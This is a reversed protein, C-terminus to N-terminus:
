HLTFFSLFTNLSANLNWAKGLSVCMFFEIKLVKAFKFHRFNYYKPWVVYNFHPSICYKPQFTFNLHRLILFNNFFFSCFILAVFIERRLNCSLQGGFLCALNVTMCASLYILMLFDLPRSLNALFQWSIISSFYFLHFLPKNLIKDLM